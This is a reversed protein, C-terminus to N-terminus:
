SASFTEARPIIARTDLIKRWRFARELAKVMTNDVRPRPAWPAGDFTM